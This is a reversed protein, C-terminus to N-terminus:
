KNINYRYIHGWRVFHTMLILITVRWAFLATLDVNAFNIKYNSKIAMDKM